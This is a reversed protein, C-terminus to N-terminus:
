GITNLNVFIFAILYACFFVAFFRHYREDKTIAAVVTLGFVVSLFVVYLPGQAQFHAVGKLLTDAADLPPLLAAVAFFRQRNEFFHARFDTEAISGPFLFVSLLFAVSPSLLLFLFLFFNWDTFGQWRFLIWWELVIFLFLNATWLLHVWYMRVTKRHEVATGIGIFLRTLALALVVSTLGSLYPFADM